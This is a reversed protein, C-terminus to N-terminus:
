SFTMCMCEFLVYPSFGMLLGEGLRADQKHRLTRSIIKSPQLAFSTKPEQVQWLTFSQSAAKKVASRQSCNMVRKEQLLALQKNLEAGWVEEKVDQQPPKSALETAQIYRCQCRCSNITLWAIIILKHLSMFQNKGVGLTRNSKSTRSMFHMCSVMGTYKLSCCISISLVADHKSECVTLYLMSHQSGTLAPVYCVYAYMNYM